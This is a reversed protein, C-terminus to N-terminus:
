AQKIIKDIDNVINYKAIWWEKEDSQEFKPKGNDDQGVCIAKRRQQYKSVNIIIGKDFPNKDFQKKYLKLTKTVGTALCYAEIRPSYKGFKGDLVYLYSKPLEPFQVQVYGLNENEIDIQTKLDVKEDSIYNEYDKLLDIRKIKTKEVYTKKYKNKGKTFENFIKVLKGNGGFESFFNLMILINLQRSNMSTNETLDVLLDVFTDYHKDRLLYMQEAIISNMYKISEIGKYINNSKKDLFYESKSYRFKPLKIQINKKNAYQTLKEIKESKDKYVNLASTLFELPYYYRLYGCSYGIITYPQSHNLSFGYSSADLIVQIFPEVIKEANEKLINYKKSSYEIFRKKIEPILDETGLKKGIARRVSDSEAMSYGCFNVLFMMIQEQYTLFGLTDSLFDNLEKLGNDKFEGNSAFKRYSSGSPRIAGNGFSVLDLLSENPNKQRIKELTDKSLLKKIYSSASPSEWQFISTTDQRIDEWVKNDNLVLNDPTLRDINALKCTRNIIDVNDLGLIDFKVYNLYDLEKMNLMSVPHDCSSIMCTGINEEIPVPSILVGSPHTGISVITGNIIDVYKFLEPYEKRYKEEDASIEDNEVAKAIKDATELSIELARAVDRIAGKKKVTNFTIIESAYIGKYHFLFEKIKDRDANSWDTDIDCLSIRSPNMFRFFNLNYKISDMDTIQLLYAILSGTVSGRGPGQWMDASHAYDVVDKMFLMYDISDTQKYVSLEEKVREYYKQKNEKKSIGRIDYGKKIKDIFVKESNEWLRPYKNERSLEYEDVMNALKNTNDIADLIVNMQLSNQKKYSDILESYSKFTLDWGEENDFLIKKSRQLISRGKAHDENLSHTDTGAILPIKYEKHLEYLYKNYEIQEKVNHHQIELFCRKKNHVLFKIFKGKINNNGKYLIGGLCATSIIINDSTNILEDILIRPYYYFYGKEKKVNNMSILKNLEKYGAYNKAYLCVHYNDRIKENLTETVYAEVGHIYKIGAEKCANMKKVHEFVSGHETFAIATMNLEKAKNIYAEYPTVSDINTIGSSLMTHLHTVVYNEPM